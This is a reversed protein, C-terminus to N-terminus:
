EVGGEAIADVEAVNTLMLLGEFGVNGGDNYVKGWEIERGGLEPAMLPGKKLTWIQKRKPKLRRHIDGEEKSEKRRRGKGREQSRDGDEAIEDDNAVYSLMLLGEM